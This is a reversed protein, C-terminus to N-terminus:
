KYIYELMAGFFVIDADPMTKKTSKYIYYYM